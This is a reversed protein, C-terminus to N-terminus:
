RVLKTPLRVASPTKEREKEEGPRCAPRPRWGTSTQWLLWTEKPPYPILHLHESVQVPSSKMENENTVPTLDRQTPIPVASPTWKDPCTFDKDQQQKDCSDPREKPILSCSFTDVWRSLHTGRGTIQWLLWTERQPYPFLQLHGSVQVPSTKREKNNTAPTLDKVVPLPVASPTWEGPCTLDEKGQQKDCSDPRESHTPSCSFVNAWRSLHLM